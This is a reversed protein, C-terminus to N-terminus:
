IYPTMATKVQNQFCMIVVIILKALPFNKLDYVQVMMVVNVKQAKIGKQVKTGKQVKNVWQGQQVMIVKIGKKAPLVRYVRYVGTVRRVKKAKIGKKM